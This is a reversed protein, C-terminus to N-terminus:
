FSLFRIAISCIRCTKSCICLKEDTKKEWEGKKEREPEVNKRIEANKTNQENVIKTSAYNMKSCRHMRFCAVIYQHIINSNNNNTGIKKKMYQFDMRTLRSIHTNHLMQTTINLITFLEVLLASNTRARTHTHTRIRKHIGHQLIHIQTCLSLLSSYYSASKWEAHWSHRRWRNFTIHCSSPAVVAAIAM